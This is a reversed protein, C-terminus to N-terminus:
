RRTNHAGKCRYFLLSKGNKTMQCMEPVRNEAKRNGPVLLRIESDILNEFDTLNAVREFYKGRRTYARTYLTVTLKHNIVDNQRLGALWCYKVKNFTSQNM